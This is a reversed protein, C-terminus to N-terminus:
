KQKKKKFVFAMTLGLASITAIFIIVIMFNNNSLMNIMVRNAPVIPTRGNIFNSLDYKGTLYDYRAMAQEVVTGEEDRNAEALITKQASPLSPYKDNGQLNNWITTLSSKFESYSSEGDVYNVCVADTQDLLDQAFDEATYTEVAPIYGNMQVQFGEFWGTFGKITIETSNTVAAKIATFAESDATQAAIKYFVQITKAGVVFNMTIDSTGAASDFSGSVLSPTGTVTTLRSAYDFTEDGSSAYVVPTDPADYTGSAISMSASGIEYLGKFISISGTVHLITTGATYGSVDATKNYIVIGYAGDMIVPGTGDLFGVYYGYVDVSAGATKTYLVQIPNTRLVTVTQATSSASKGLLTATAVVSSVSVAPSAPSYSWVVNDTVNGVYGSDYTGSVSLGAPSWSEGVYYSTKSMSGSVSLSILTGPLVTIATSAIKYGECSVTITTTGVSKPKWKLWTYGDVFYDIISSDSVSWSCGSTVSTNDDVDWMLAYKFDATDGYTVEFPGENHANNVIKSQKLKDDLKYLSLAGGTGTGYCAFGLDGNKRLWKNAPDSGGSRALNEFEFTSSSRTVTWRANDTVTSLLAAQNKSSTSGAYKEEEENYLTWYEGSQAIHWVISADENEITNNEITVSSSVLRNSSISAKIAKSESVIIYDGEEIDSSFLKYEPLIPKDEWIAYLTLNGSATAGPAYDIGGGNAATNWKSFKKGNPAIFSCEAVTNETNSMTGTGGNANYTITYSVGGDHTVSFTNLQLQGSDGLTFVVSKSTGSWTGDGTDSPHTYSGTSASVTAFAKNGQKEWNFTIAKINNTSTITVTNKAYLRLGASYWTPANSGSGIAFSATVSDVTVSSAGSLTFNATSTARAEKVGKSGVAAGVGLALGLGVSLTAIRSFLKNM